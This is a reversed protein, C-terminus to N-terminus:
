SLKYIIFRCVGKLDDRWESEALCLLNWLGITKDRTDKLALICCRLTKMDMLVFLYHFDLFVSYTVRTVNIIIM